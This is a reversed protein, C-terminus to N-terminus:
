GASPGTVAEETTKDKDEISGDLRRKLSFCLQQLVEKVVETM